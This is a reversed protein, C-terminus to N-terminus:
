YSFLMTGRGGYVKFINYTQAYCYLWLRKVPPTFAFRLEKKMIRNMNAEGMVVSPPYYGNQTGFPLCYMYRNHWPAKREEYSPLISRYLACNETSTRVYKGEYIFEILSFPESGRFAFAPVIVGPIGAYLGDANPWWPAPTKSDLFEQTSGSLDRTALFFANYASATYNQAMWYLHRTPNAIELPIQYTPFARTDKPDIITHQIMPIEIDALRFRNAEPKDLYIYEALLYTDGLEYTTPMKIGSIISAKTATTYLGAPPTTGATDAKYFSSGAMPWLASGEIAPDIASAPARSYTYYLSNLPRFQVSVRVEDVHLADIPLAAGLDGRCFWLPLPIYLKLPVPSHGLSTPTYGNDLRGIMQNKGIVKELPTDFEDLIELLRSDLQEVRTGGIELTISQLLAHGISNTWGFTPGIFNNGAALMAAAQQTYIDPLTVVVLLRTLLEGKKLLRCIAQQGFQPKQQFDLRAWQTTIRGARVLVRVYAGVDRPGDKPLLREDQPGSHLLRVLAAVM